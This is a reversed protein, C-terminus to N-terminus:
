KGTIPVPPAFLIKVLIKNGSIATVSYASAMSLSSRLGELNINGERREAMIM